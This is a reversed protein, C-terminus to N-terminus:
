SRLLGQLEDAVRAAAQGPRKDLVSVFREGGTYVGFALIVFLLAAVLKALLGVLM